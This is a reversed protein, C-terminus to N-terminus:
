RTRHTNVVNVRSEKFHGVTRTNKTEASKGPVAEPSFGAGPVPAGEAKLPVVAVIENQYSALERAIQPQFQEPGGYFASAPNPLM